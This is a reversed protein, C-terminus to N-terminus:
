SCQRQYSLCIDRETNYLFGNGKKKLIEREREDKNMVQSHYRVIPPHSYTFSQHGNDKM